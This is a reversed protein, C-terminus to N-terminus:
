ELKMMEIIKMTEVSLTCVRKLIDIVQNKYNEFSYQDFKEAITPDKPKSEKYQDLVWDLGSRNGLKYDWAQKPIGTLSTNEDLYIIGSLRESKLKAKSPHETISSVTELKYPEINKFGLHLEMLKKGFDAWKNFNKYLPIRPFERKLNLEYKNRYEPNHLVAYVYHFISERSIEKKGYKKIFQNLGWDTINDRRNGVKDYYYLPVSSTLGNGQKLLGADFVSDVCLCYLPHSSAISLFAIAKNDLQTILGFINELQYIRHTYIRDYYFFKNVFPRFASIQIRDENFVLKDGKVLHSEIESGFKIERKVFNNIPENKDSNNWRLQEQAYFKCFYDAKRALYEKDFDYSWDDRATM